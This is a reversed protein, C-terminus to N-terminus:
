DNDFRDKKPESPPMPPKTPGRGKKKGRPRAQQHCVVCDFGLVMRMIM